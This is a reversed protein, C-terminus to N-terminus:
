ISLRKKLKDQRSYCLPCNNNIELWQKICKFHYIHRCDSLFINKTNELDCLCISCIEEHEKEAKNKKSIICFHYSKM